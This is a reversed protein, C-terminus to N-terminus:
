GLDKFRASEVPRGGSSFGERLRWIVKLYLYGVGAGAVWIWTIRQPIGLVLGIAVLILVVYQAEM